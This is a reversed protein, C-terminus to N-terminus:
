SGGTSVQASGSSGTVPTSSSISTSADDTASTGTDTLATTTDADAVRTAIGDYTAAAVWGLGATAAVGAVLTGLTLTQLRRVARSRDDARRASKTNM